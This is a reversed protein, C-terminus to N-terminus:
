VKEFDYPCDVRQSTSDDSCYQIPIGVPRGGETRTATTIKSMLADTKQLM